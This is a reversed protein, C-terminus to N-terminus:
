TGINCYLLYTSCHTLILPVHTSLDRDGIYAICTHTYRVLPVHTSLDGGFQRSMYIHLCAYVFEHYISYNYIYM